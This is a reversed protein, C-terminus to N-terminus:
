TTPMPSRISPPGSWPPSAMSDRPRSTPATRSTDDLAIGHVLARGGNTLQAEMRGDSSGLHVALGNRVGGDLPPGDQPAVRLLALALLLGHM